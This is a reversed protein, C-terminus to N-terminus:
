PGRLASFLWGSFVSLLIHRWTRYRPGLRPRLRRVVWLIEFLERPSTV